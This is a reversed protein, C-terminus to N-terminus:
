KRGLISKISVWIFTIVDMRADLYYDVNEYSSVYKLRLDKRIIHRTRCNLIGFLIGAITLYIGSSIPISNLPNKSYKAIYIHDIISHSFINLIFIRIKSERWGKNSLSASQLKALIRQHPVLFRLMGIKLYSKITDKESM